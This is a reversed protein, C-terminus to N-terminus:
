FFADVQITFRDDDPIVGDGDLTSFEARLKINERLFHGIGITWSDIKNRGDNAEYSDFRLVPTFLPRGESLINYFGQIYYASNSVDGIANLVDDNAKMYAANVILRNNLTTWETDIAYRSFDRDALNCPDGINAGGASQMTCTGSIAMGGIMLSPTIDYAIRGVYTDADEGENDNASGSYSVGYFLKNTPRGFLTLNQRNKRISAGNDAGGFSQDIVVNRNITSRRSSTYSNYPDFFFTPAKSVQINISPKITYTGQAITVSAEFNEEDEAELEIFGSIGNGFHGAIMIEVEHIARNKTEGSDKKDFPRSIIGASIPFLEDLELNPSIERGPLQGASFHYGQTKYLRGLSSLAPLASHCVSCQVGEKRAFATIAYSQSAGLLLLSLLLYSFFNIPIKM